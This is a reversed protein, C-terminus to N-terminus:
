IADLTGTGMLLYAFVGNGRLRALVYAKTSNALLAHTNQHRARTSRHPAHHTAAVLLSVIGVVGDIM